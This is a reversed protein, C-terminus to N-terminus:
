HTSTLLLNLDTYKMKFRKSLHLNTLKRKYIYVGNRLGKNNYLLSSIGSSTEMQILLTTLINSVAKSATQGIRSAMNPVCYHIVDHELFTPREHSTVRSTAFCGGQDISVDIIVSRPRMSSVMEDSVIVPARGTEAHIAGIAVDAQELERALIDPIITSTFVQRGLERQLRMLKYLNNDFVRVDAGMGIAARAACLGVMGAGLIVVQTPPVGTISGFLQGRGDRMSSMLTAAIQVSSLGAMESLARVFPFQDASGKIYEWSLCTVGKGILRFLIEDRMTPLHIPSIIVQDQQFLELEDKNPPTVKLLLASKYVEEKSSTLQAGAESYQHDEFGSRIGAGREMIIRHGHSVLLAVASPTLSVRTEQFKKESPIGIFLQNRQSGIKLPREQTEVLDDILSQPISVKKHDAM